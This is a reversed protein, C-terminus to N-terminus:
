CLGALLKEILGTTLRPSILATIWTIVTEAIQQSLSLGAASKLFATFKGRKRRRLLKRRTQQVSERHGTLRGRGHAVLPATSHAPRENDREERRLGSPKCMAGAVGRNVPNLTFYIGKAITLKELESLCADANDFYGSVTGTRRNGRLQAGLARVEFVARPELM